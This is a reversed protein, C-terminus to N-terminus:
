RKAVFLKITDPKLPKDDPGKLFSEVFIRKHRNESPYWQMRWFGRVIWRWQWDVKTEAKEAQQDQKLRRLTVIRIVPPIVRGAKEARRRTARDVKEDVTIALRQSMLHLAAFLWRMEHLRHETREGTSLFQPEYTGRPSEKRGREEFDVMRERLMQGNRLAFFSWPSWFEEWGTTDAGVRDRLLEMDGYFCFQVTGPPAPETSGDYAVLTAGLPVERWGVARILLHFEREQEIVPPVEAPTEMWLWGRKAQLWEAEFLVDDPMERRAHDVLDCFHRDMFFTDSSELIDRYTEVIKGYEQMLDAWRRPEQAHRLWALKKEVTAIYESKLM